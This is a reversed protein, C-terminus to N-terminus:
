AINPGDGSGIDPVYQKLKFIGSTFETLKWEKSPMPINLPMWGTNAPTDPDLDFFNLPLEWISSPANEGDKQPQIVFLQFTTNNNTIYTWIKKLIQAKEDQQVAEKLVSAIQVLLADTPNILHTSYFKIGSTAVYKPLLYDDPYNAGGIGIIPQGIVSQCLKVLYPQLQVLHDTSMGICVDWSMSTTLELTNTKTPEVILNNSSDFALPSPMAGFNNLAIHGATTSTMTPVYILLHLPYLVTKSLLTQVGSGQQVSRDPLCGYIYECGKVAYKVFCAPDPGSEGGWIFTDGINPNQPFQTKFGEGSDGKPGIVNIPAPVPEQTTITKVEWSMEGNDSITPIYTQGAEGKVDVTKVSSVGGQTTTISLRGRDDLFANVSDGKEGKVDFSLEEIVKGEFDTNRIILHGNGDKSATLSNGNQGKLNFDNIIAEGREDFTTVTFVGDQFNFQPAKATQQLTLNNIFITVDEDVQVKKEVKSELYGQVFTSAAFAIYIDTNKDLVFEEGFNFVKPDEQPHVMSFLVVCAPVAEAERTVDVEAMIKYTGAPVNDLYKKYYLSQQGITYKHSLQRSTVENLRETLENIAGIVDHSETLLNEDDSKQYSQEIQAIRDSYNVKVPNGLEDKIVIDQGDFNSFVLYGDKNIYVNDPDYSSQVKIPVYQGDKKYSLTGTQHNLYISSEIM